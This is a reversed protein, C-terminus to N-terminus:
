ILKKSFPPKALLGEGFGLFLRAVFYVFIGIIFTGAITIGMKQIRNLGKTEKRIDLYNRLEISCAAIISLVVANLIFAKAITTATLNVVPKFSM